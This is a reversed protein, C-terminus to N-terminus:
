LISGCCRFLRRVFSWVALTIVVVYIVVFIDNDLSFAYLPAFFLDMFARLFEYM